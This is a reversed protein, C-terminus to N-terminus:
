FVLPDEASLAYQRVATDIHTQTYKITRLQIHILQPRIGLPGRFASAYPDQILHQLLAFSPSGPLSGHTDPFPTVEQGGKETEGEM